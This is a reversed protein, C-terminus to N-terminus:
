TRSRESEAKARLVQAMQSLTQSLPGNETSEAHERVWALAGESTGQFSADGDKFRVALWDGGQLQAVLFMTM